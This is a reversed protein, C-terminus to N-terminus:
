AIIFEAMLALGFCVIAITGVLRIVFKSKFAGALMLTNKIDIMPGFILFALLSSSAFQYRFTSAIFADAESCLSLVFAMVMMLLISSLPSNGISMLVTRPVFVQMVASIFAGAILFRGVDYLESNTHSLVRKIDDLGLGKSRKVVSHDHDIGCGCTDVHKEDLAGKIPLRKLQASPVTSLRVTTQSSGQSAITFQGTKL